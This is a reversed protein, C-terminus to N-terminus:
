CSRECSLAEAREAVEMWLTGGTLLAGLAAAPKMGAYGAMFSRLGAVGLMWGGVFVTAGIGTALLGAVRSLMRYHEQVQNDTVAVTRRSLAGGIQLTWILLAFTTLVLGAFIWLFSGTKWWDAHLIEVDGASRVLLYFARAEQNEDSETLCVGTVRIRTGPSIGSVGKGSGTDEMRAQFFIDHDRLLLVQEHSHQIVDVVDAETEVLVGHYPAFIAGNNIQIAKAASIHTPRVRSGKAISRIVADRLEPVYRGPTIFGAAEVVAGPKLELTATTKVVIGEDRSQLYIAHGVSQYILTGTVKVRHALLAGAGFQQLKSIPTSPLLFPDQSPQEVHVSGSDSVYLRLGILQRKDNFVAGCVGTVRVRADVLDEFKSDFHLVRATITGPGLDINLLLIPRGWSRTVVASHVIGSVEVWKSDQEGSILEHYSHLRAEPMSGQGHLSVKDAVVIPAYQGPGTTGIVEVADGARAKSAEKGQVYLGGTNDQVFFTGKWGTNATVVGKLDVPYGKAADESTLEHVARATTLAVRGRAASEAKFLGGTLVVLLMLAVARFAACAVCVSGLLRNGRSSPRHSITALM